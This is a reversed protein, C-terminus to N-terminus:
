PALRARFSRERTVSATDSLMLYGMYRSFIAAPEFLSAVVAGWLTNITMGHRL